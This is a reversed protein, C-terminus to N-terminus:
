LFLDMRQAVFAEGHQNGRMIHVLRFAAVADGIQEVALQDGGARHVLDDLARAEGGKHQFALRHAAQQAVQLLRGADVIGTEEAGGQM